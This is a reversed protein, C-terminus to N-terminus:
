QMQHLHCLSVLRNSLLGVRGRSWHQGRSGCFGIDGLKDSSGHSSVGQACSEWSSAMSLNCLAMVETRLQGM